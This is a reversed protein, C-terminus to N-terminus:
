TKVEVKALEPAFAKAKISVWYATLSALKKFASRLSSGL